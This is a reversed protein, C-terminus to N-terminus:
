AQVHSIQGVARGFIQVAVAGAHRVVAQEASYARKNQPSVLFLESVLCFSGTEVCGKLPQHASPSLISCCFSVMKDSSWNQQSHKLDVYLLM